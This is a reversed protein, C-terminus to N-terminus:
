KEAVGAGCEARQCRHERQRVSAVLQRTHRAHVLSRDAIQDVRKAREARVNAIQPPFTERRERDALSDDGRAIANRNATFHRALKEGRQQHRQRQDAPADRDFHQALQNRLRIDLHRQVQHRSEADSNSTLLPM